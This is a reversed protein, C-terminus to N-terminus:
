PSHAKELPRTHPSEHHKKLPRGPIFRTTGRLPPARGPRPSLWPCLRCRGERSLLIGLLSALHGAGGPPVNPLTTNALAASRLWRETGMDLGWGSIGPYTQSGGRIAPIWDTVEVRCVARSQQPRHTDQQAGAHQRVSPHYALLQSCRPREPLSSTSTWVAGIARTRSYQGRRSPSTPEPAQGATGPWKSARGIVLERGVATRSFGVTWVPSGVLDMLSDTAASTDQGACCGLTLRM